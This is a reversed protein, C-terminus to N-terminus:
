RLHKTSTYYIDVLHALSKVREDTSASYFWGPRISVDTEAPVWAAGGEEGENLIRTPPAGTGPEFGKINMTSWNTEGAVGRENGMWRCGPGVDSFIIAHPQNRFVTAHFLDWDYVQRKGNPGENLFTTKLLCFHHIMKIFVGLIYFLLMEFINTKM